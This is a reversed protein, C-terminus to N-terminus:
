PLRLVNDALIGSLVVVDSAVATNIGAGGNLRGNLTGTFQDGKTLLLTLLDNDGQGNVTANVTGSSNSDLNFSAGIRDRGANGNLVVNCAGSIQGLQVLSIRDNGENGAVFINLTGNLNVDFDENLRFRINDNGLKGRVDFSLSAMGMIDGNNIAQALFFDNGDGLDVVVNRTQAAQLDAALTYFVVDGGNKTTVVIDKVGAVPPSIVGDCALTINGAGDDSIQVNNNTDDGTITLIINPAVGTQMITCAPVCRDELQEVRLAPRRGRLHQSVRVNRIM